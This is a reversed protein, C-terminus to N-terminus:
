FCNRIARVLPEGLLHSAFVKIKRRMRLMFTTYCWSGAFHHITITRSTPHAVGTDGSMATLYDHPLLFVVSSNIDPYSTSVLLQRGHLCIADHMVQPAKCTSLTLDDPSFHHSEYFEKCWGVFPSGPEAGFVGAEPYDDYEAGFLYPRDLLNDFSGILEVDMDLYIGGQHYVAYFRIYDAAFAYKGVAVAEQVWSVEDFLELCRYDWFVFKFDPLRHRWQEVYKQYQIPIPDQSLWCYHIIRPIM